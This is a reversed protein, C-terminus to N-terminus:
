LVHEMNSRCRALDPLLSSAAPLSVLRLDPNINHLGVLLIMAQPRSLEVKPALRCWSVFHISYNPLSVGLMKAGPEDLTM